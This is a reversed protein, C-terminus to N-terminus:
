SVGEGKPNVLKQGGVFIDGKAYLTATSTVTCTHVPDWTSGSDSSKEAFVDGTAIERRIRVLDGATWAVGTNIGNAEGRNYMYYNNGAAPAVYIGYLWDGNLADNITASDDLGIFVAWSTNDPVEMQVWGDGALTQSAKDDAGGASNWTGAPSETFTTWGTLNVLGGTTTADDTAYSSDRYVNTTDQAKVRYYYHTASTLGTNSYSTGSGNYVTTLGTTFAADTARQLVYNDANASADWDLDIQTNSIVSATFNGPADLQEGYAVPIAFMSGWYFTTGDYAFNLWNVDGPNLKWVVADVNGPLTPVYSGAAGQTIKIAGFVPGAPINDIDLENNGDITWYAVNGASFDWTTTAGDTLTVSKPKVINLIEQISAM